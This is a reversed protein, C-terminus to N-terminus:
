RSISRATPPAPPTTCRGRAVEFRIRAFGKEVIELRSEFLGNVPAHRYLSELARFHAAAGAEAEPPMQPKRSRFALRVPRRALPRRAAQGGHRPRSAGPQGGGAGQSPRRRRRAAVPDPLRSRGSAQRGVPLRGARDAPRFLRVRREAGRDPRAPHRSRRRLRDLRDERARQPRRRDDEFRPRDAAGRRRALLQFLGKKNPVTMGADVCDVTLIDTIDNM